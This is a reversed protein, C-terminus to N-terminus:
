FLKQSQFIILLKCNENSTKPKQVDVKNKIMFSIM